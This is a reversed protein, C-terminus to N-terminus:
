TDGRKAARTRYVTKLWRWVQIVVLLAGGFSTIYGALSNLAHILPFWWHSVSFVLGIFFEFANVSHQSPQHFQDTM